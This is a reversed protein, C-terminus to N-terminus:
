GPPTGDSQLRLRRDIIAYAVQSLTLDNSFAHARLRVLAEAPAIGLQGMVIGTAQHVEVRSLSALHDWGLDDESGPALNADISILRLLPLAALEAAMLAGILADGLLARPSHRYLGLVGIYCNAVGVPLAHFAHVGLDLAARTFAPWRQEAPDALNEAQVPGGHRVADVCPGEGFTFQLEDLQRSLQGSSGVTGLTSGDSMLSIAAGDVGLLQVCGRSLRDASSLAVDGSGM